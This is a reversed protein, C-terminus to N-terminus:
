DPKGSEPMFDCNIWEVSVREAKEYYGPKGTCSDFKVKELTTGDLDFGEITCNLFNVERAHSNSFSTWYLNCNSFNCLVFHSISLSAHNFDVNEFSCDIFYSDYMDSRRFSINVFHCKVYCSKIWFGNSFHIKINAFETEYWISDYLLEGDAHPSEQGEQRFPALLGEVDEKKIKKM